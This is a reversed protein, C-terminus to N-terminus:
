SPPSSPRSQDVRQWLSWRGTGALRVYSQGTETPTGAMLLLYPWSPSTCDGSMAGAVANMRAEDVVIPQQTSFGFLTSSVGGRLPTVFHGVHRFVAIEKVTKPDGSDRANCQLVMANTPLESLLAIVADTERSYERWHLTIAGQRAVILAALIVVVRRPATVVMPLAALGLLAFAPPVFRRDVGTGTMASLPAAISLLWLGISAALLDPDWRRSKAARILWLVAIAFSALWVLDFMADYTRAWSLLATVKGRLDNWAFPFGVGPEAPPQLLLFVVGSPIIAAGRRLVTRWPVHRRILQDLLICGASLCLLVPGSAHVLGLPASIALTLGLTGQSGSRQWGLWASLSLLFLALALSYSLFGVQLSTHYAFLGVLAGYGWASPATARAVMLCGILFALAIIAVVVPGVADFPLIKTLPLALMEFGLNPTLHQNLTIAGTEFLWFDPHALIWLRAVHNPYDGLPPTPGLLLPLLLVAGAAVALATQHRVPPKAM